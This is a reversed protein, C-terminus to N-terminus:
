LTVKALVGREASWLSPGKRNGPSSTAGFGISNLRPSRDFNQTLHQPDRLLGRPRESVLPGCTVAEDFGDGIPTSKVKEVLIDMFKDYVSDQM